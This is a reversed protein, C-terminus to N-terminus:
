QEKFIYSNKKTFIYREGQEKILNILTTDKVLIKFDINELMQKVYKGTFYKKLETIFKNSTLDDIDSTFIMNVNNVINKEIYINLKDKIEKKIKKNIILFDKKNLKILSNEDSLDQKNVIDSLYKIREEKIGNSFELLDIRYKDISETLSDTNLVINNKKALELFKTKIIDMSDLPPKAILMKIDEDFLVNTNNKILELIANKYNKVHQQKIQTLTDIGCDM